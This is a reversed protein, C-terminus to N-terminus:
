NQLNSKQSHRHHPSWQVSVVKRLDIIKCFITSSYAPRELWIVSLLRDWWLSRRKFRIQRTKKHSTCRRQTSVTHFSWFVNWPEPIKEGFATFFGISHLEWFKRTYEQVITEVRCCQYENYYPLTSRFPQFVESGNTPVGRLLHDIRFCHWLSLSNNEDQM